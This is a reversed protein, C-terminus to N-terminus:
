YVIVNINNVERLTPEPISCYGNLTVSGSSPMTLSYTNASNTSSVTTSGGTFTVGPTTVTLTSTTTGYPNYTKSGYYLISNGELVLNVLTGPYGTLTYATSTTTLRTTTAGNMTVPHWYLSMATGGNTSSNLVPNLEITEGFPTNNNVVTWTPNSFKTGGVNILIDYLNLYNQGAPYDSAQVVGYGGNVGESNYAEMTEFVVSLPVPVVPITNGQPPVDGEIITLTNDYISNNSLNYFTSTYNFSAASNQGTYTVQGDLITGQQVPILDSIAAGGAWVYWNAIGWGNANGAASSAGWQLVPQAITTGSSNQLADFFFLTQGDNSTPPAPVTWATVIYSIPTPIMNTWYADTVWSPTQSGPRVVSMPVMGSALKDAGGTTTTTSSSTAATPSLVEGYDEIVTGSKPEVKLMHGGKHMLVYGKQIHHVLYAPMYGEPTLVLATSDTSTTATTGPTKEQLKNCASFLMSACLIALLMQNQMKM